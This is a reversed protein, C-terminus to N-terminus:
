APKQAVFMIMPSYVRSSPLYGGVKRDVWNAARVLWRMNEKVSSDRWDFWVRTRMIYNGFLIKMSNTHLCRELEARNMIKTNHISFIKGLTKDTYVVRRLLGQLGGLYPVTLVLYGGPKLLGVHRAIVDEYNEFHEIFGFSAAVDYEPEIKVDMFDRQLVKFNTVGNFELLRRIDEAHDSYELATVQYGFRKHFYCLQTGPYAGIEIIKMSPKAPLIADLIPAFESGVVAFPKFTARANDWDNKETLKM